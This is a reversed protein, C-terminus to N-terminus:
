GSTGEEYFYMVDPTVLKKNELDGAWDILMPEMRNGREMDKNSPKPVPPSEMLLEGALAASSTYPHTGHIAAAVSASVRRNGQKDAWRVRLWEESGHEPKEITYRFM